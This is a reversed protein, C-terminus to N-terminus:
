GSVDYVSIVDKIEDYGSVKEDLIGSCMEVAEIIGDDAVVM